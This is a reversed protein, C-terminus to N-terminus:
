NWSGRHLHHKTVSCSSETITYIGDIWVLRLYLISSVSLLRRGVKVKMMYDVVSSSLFFSFVFTIVERKRNHVERENAAINWCSWRTHTCRIVVKSSGKHIKISETCIRCIGVGWFVCMSVSIIRLRGM